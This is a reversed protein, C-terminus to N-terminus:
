ADVVMACNNCRSLLATSNPLVELTELLPSNRPQLQLVRLPQGVPSRGASRWQVASCQAAEACEGTSLM